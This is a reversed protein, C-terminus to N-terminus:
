SCDWWFIVKSFDGRALDASRILLNAEGVDGWQLHDDSTLHLLCTDYDDFYGAERFDTQVFVPYGGVHHARPAVEAQDVLTHEWEAYGLRGYNGDLRAAVEWHEPRLPDTFPTPALAVGEDRVPGRLFPSCDEDTARANAHRVTCAGNARALVVVTSDAPDDVGMGMLDDDVPLFVQVVGTQPFGPLPPLCAFDIQALFAMPRGRPSIPWDQGESLWVPGGLRCGDPTAAGPGPTLRVAPRAAAAAWADLAAREHPTIPSGEPNAAAFEERWARVAAARAPRGEWWRYIDRIERWFFPLIVAAMFAAAFLVGTWDPGGNM